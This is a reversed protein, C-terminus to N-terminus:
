ARLYTGIMLTNNENASRSACIKSRILWGFSIAFGEVVNQEGGGTLRKEQSHNISAWGKRFVDIIVDSNIGVRNICQGISRDDRANRERQYHAPPVAM